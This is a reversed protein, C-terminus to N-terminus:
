GKENGLVHIRLDSQATGVMMDRIPTQAPEVTVNTATITTPKQGQCLTCWPWDPAYVAGCVPCKWGYRIPPMEYESM